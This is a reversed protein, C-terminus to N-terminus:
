CSIFKKKFLFFGSIYSRYNTVIIVKYVEGFGGKGIRSRESFNNTAVKLIAMDIQLSDMTTIIEVGVIYFTLSCIHLFGTLNQM